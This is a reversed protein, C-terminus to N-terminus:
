EDNLKLRLYEQYNKEMDNFKEEGIRDRLETFIIKKEFQVSPPKVRKVRRPLVQEPEEMLFIHAQERTNM